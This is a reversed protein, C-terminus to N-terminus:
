DEEVCGCGKITKYFWGLGVVMITTGLILYFAPLMEAGNESLAIKFVVLLTEISLAIIISILFKGLVKYQKDENHELTQFLVEHEFIQRSLDYIALGLTVSIIVKFIDHIFNVDSNALFLISVFIFVGYGILLIAVLALITSGLFYVARKFKDHSQNFEILKLEELLVILDVDYVYYQNNKYHVVSISAKGTRYHIYPNSIYINDVLQMKLFYHSKDTGIHEKDENKRCIIPTLQRFNEDVGYILQVYKHQKLIDKSNAISDKQHNNVFNQLYSDITSRHKKYINIIQKM